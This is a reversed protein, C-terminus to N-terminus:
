EVIVLVGSVIIGDHIFLEGDIEFFEFWELEIGFAVLERRILDGRELVVDFETAIRDDEEGRERARLTQAPVGATRIVSHGLYQDDAREDMAARRDNRDEVVFGSMAHRRLIQQANEVAVHGRFFKQLITFVIRTQRAM